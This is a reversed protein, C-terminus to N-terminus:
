AARRAARNANRVARQKSIELAKVFREAAIREARLKAARTLVRNTWPVQNRLEAQVGRPTKTLTGRGPAKHRGYAKWKPVGRMSGRMDRGATAWGSAARGVNRQRRRIYIDRNRPNTLLASGPWNRPVARKRNRNRARRHLSPDVRAQVLLRQLRANGSRQLLERVRNWDGRKFEAWKAKAMDPDIRVIEDWIESPTVYVRRIDGAVRQAFADGDSNGLGFPQTARTMGVALARAEQRVVSEEQRRIEALVAGFKATAGRTNVRLKLM